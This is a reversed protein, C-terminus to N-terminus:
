GRFDFPNVIVFSLNLESSGLKTFLWETIFWDTFLWDYMDFEDADKKFLLMVEYAARNFSSYFKYFKFLIFM